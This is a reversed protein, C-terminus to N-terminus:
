WTSPESPRTSCCRRPRALVPDGTVIELHLIEARTAAVQDDGPALLNAAGPFIFTGFLALM